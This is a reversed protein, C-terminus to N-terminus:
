SAVGELMEVIETQLSRIDADIEELSRPPEYRHFHRSFPIEYGIKTKSDDVWADPVHSLVERAFWKGVPERLPVRETDRLEPDPEPAGDPMRCIEANEHREGLAAVVMKLPAPGLRTASERDLAKLDAFFADRDLYSREGYRKRFAEVLERIAEQQRRGTEIEETRRAADKKPSEALKRFALQRDLRAIREPTARFELRLPREVVIKRYGFDANRFVRSVVRMRKAPAGPSRSGEAFSRTVKRARSFIKTIEGIQDPEGERDAPDGIKNRKDRLSKPMKVFFRRADILQIRGKRKADKRNTLIWLYTAIGTNYFLQDPLAVIAELWDNEIIWRRIQSEGSEADGTFLPSGNFVIAIRSGGKGVPRMKSLMHQLFLLSGDSVRPLGAGFRGGFGSREAEDRIVSQRRKWNVGFPPNALMYHFTSIPGDAAFADETFIDGLHINEAHKGKIFLDSRCVAFAEDDLDQGYLLTRARANLKRIHRDAESLMGGTGCAPDYITRIIGPRELETESALLLNVMLRIVERPTFHHGAEDNAQQAGIRILEEFLYGMGIDDVRSPSLDVDAFAEVVQFLLEKERLKEIQEAFKFREIVERVEPSFGGLYRNLNLVLQDPDGLLKRFDFRSRNVVPSKTIQRLDAWVTAESRHQIKDYRALVRKKTPALVGDFRRMVTLPLIVKRYESQKYPGRLLDCIGWVFNVLESHTMPNM